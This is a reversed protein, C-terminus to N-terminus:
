PTTDRGFRERHGCMEAAPLIRWAVGCVCIDKHCPFVSTHPREGTPLPRTLGQPQQRRRYLAVETCKCDQTESSSAGNQDDQVPLPPIEASDGICVALAVFLLLAVANSNM